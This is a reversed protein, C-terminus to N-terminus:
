VIREPAPLTPRPEANPTTDRPAPEAIPRTLKELEWRLLAGALVVRGDRGIRVYIGTGSPNRNGLLLNIPAGQRLLLEISDTPPDLGYDVLDKQSAQVTMIESMEHLSALFDNVIEPRQVGTWAGDVRRLQMHLAGRQLHIAEVDEPAFEALPRAMTAISAASPEAASDRGPPAGRHLDFWAYLGTAVLAIALALTVRWSM